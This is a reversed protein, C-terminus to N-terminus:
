HGSHSFRGASMELEMNLVNDMKKIVFCLSSFCCAATKQLNQNTEQRPIELLGASPKFNRTVALFCM